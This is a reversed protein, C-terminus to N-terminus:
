DGSRNSANYTITGWYTAASSNALIDGVVSGEGSGNAGEFRGTGGVVVWELDVYSTFSDPTMVTTFTGWQSLILTDGNAATFTVTSSAFHGTTPSDLWTCQSVHNAALGLHTVESTGSSFFQWAAGPCASPPPGYGDTSPGVSVASFPVERDPQGRTAAAPTAAVLTLAALLAAIQVLKTM